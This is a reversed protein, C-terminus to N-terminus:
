FANKIPLLHYLKHVNNVNKNGGKVIIGPCRFKIINFRQSSTFRESLRALHQSITMVSALRSLSSRFVGDNMLTLLPRRCHHKKANCERMMKWHRLAHGVVHTTGRATQYVCVFHRKDLSRNDDGFTGIGVACSSTEDACDPSTFAYGVCKKWVRTEQLLPNEALGPKPSTVRFGPKQDLM